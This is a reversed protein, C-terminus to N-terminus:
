VNPSLAINEKRTGRKDCSKSQISAFGRRTYISWSKMNCIKYVELTLDCPVLKTMHNM